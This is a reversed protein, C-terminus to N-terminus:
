HRWCKCVRCVWLGTNDIEMFKGEDANAVISLSTKSLIHAVKTNLDPDFIDESRVNTPVIYCLKVVDEKSETRQSKKGSANGIQNKRKFTKSQVVGGNFEM